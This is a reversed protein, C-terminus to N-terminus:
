PIFFDINVCTLEEEPSKSVVKRSKEIIEVLMERIKQLDNKSLSHIATYHISTPSKLQASQVAKNRWNLLNIAHLPSSDPLHINSKTVEWKKGENKVYGMEELNRLVTSVQNLPLQFKNAIEDISHLQPITLYLHIAAYAWHSYYQVQGAHDNIHDKKFKKSLNQFKEKLKKLEQQHYKKLNLSGARGLHVLNLFYKTQIEDFQWFVALGLAHEPTLHVHSSLVQSLYSVKCGAALALQGKLGRVSQQNKITEKLFIKYEIFDFLQM